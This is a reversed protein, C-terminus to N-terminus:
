ARRSAASGRITRRSFLITRAERIGTLATASVQLHKTLLVRDVLRAAEPLAGKRLAKGVQPRIHRLEKAVSEISTLSPVLLKDAERPELKLLGGGYARGVMEASLLTVSNLMALPLLERGLTRRGNFLEIGYLSNLHSVRAENTVVRPREHDMYTLFLDPTPVVPVRWWPKRMRCKYATHVHTAEGAEIYARAALSPEETKPYFLYVSEEDAMEEWSKQSFILGRLHRSGPPSIRVVEDKRLGLESVEPRTLTFFKNNGTVSGLYSRGWDKMQEFANLEELSRCTELASSALLAPTWKGDKAPKFWTWTARREFEDLADLNKAQFVEFSATPAPGNGEALLLVVEELVGPFVLEEFMILRVSAFRELLFRRVEAAYNVTLLEAPLVLGLRGGPALFRTAHVTFPAWASALGSLRVGEALAAQMAKLRSAGSFNQYRVYPPNGIVASFTPQPEVDFFDAAIVNAAFGQARLAEEAARASPAHLEVGRLTEPADGALGLARLREAAALLFSAEGASPELIRDTASRLAWNALFRSM